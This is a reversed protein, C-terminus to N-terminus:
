GDHMDTVNGVNRNSIDGDFRSESFMGRMNTVYFVDWQSVDGNFRSKYFLNNM